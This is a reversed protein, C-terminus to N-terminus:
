RLVSNGDEKNSISESWVSGGGGGQTGMIKEEHGRECGEITSM